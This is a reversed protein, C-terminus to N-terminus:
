RGTPVRESSLAVHSDWLPKKLAARKTAIVMSILSLAFSARHGSDPAKDKLFQLMLPFKEEGFSGSCLPTSKADFFFHWAM